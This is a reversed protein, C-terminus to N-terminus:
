CGLCCVSVHPDMLYRVKRVVPLVWPQGHNDRYAGVGLDVKQAFSDAKCKAMLGFLSDVPIQDVVFSSPQSKSAALSAPQVPNTPLNPQSTHVKMKEM